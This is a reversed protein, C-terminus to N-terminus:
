RKTFHLCDREPNSSADGHGNETFIITVVCADKDNIIRCYLVLLLHM